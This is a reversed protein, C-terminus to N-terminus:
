VERSSVVGADTQMRRCTDDASSHLAAAATTAAERAMRRLSRRSARRCRLETSASARSTPAALAAAALAVTAGAGGRMPPLRAVELLRRDHCASVAAASAVAVLQWCALGAHGARSAAAGLGPRLGAATDGAAWRCRPLPAALGAALKAGATAVAGAAESRGCLRTEAPLWTRKLGAAPPASGSGWLWLLAVAPPLLALRGSGLEDAAAAAAGAGTQLSPVWAAAGGGAVARGRRLRMGKGAVYSAGDAARLGDAAAAASLRMGRGGSSCLSHATSPRAYVDWGAAASDSAAASCAPFASAPTGSTLMGGLAARGALAPSPSPM